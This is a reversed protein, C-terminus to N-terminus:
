CVSLHRVEKQVILLRILSIHGPKQKLKRNSIANYTYTYIYMYYVTYIQLKIKQIYTNNYIRFISIQERQDTFSLRNIINATEAFTGM